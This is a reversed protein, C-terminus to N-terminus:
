MHLGMQRRPPACGIIEAKGSACGPLLVGLDEEPAALFPIAKEEFWAAGGYDTLMEQGKPINCHAIIYFDLLPPPGEPTGLAVRASPRLSSHMRLCATKANTNYVMGYELVLDAYGATHSYTYMDTLPTSKSRPISVTVCRELVEGAKYDKGAYV